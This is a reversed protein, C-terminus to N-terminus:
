SVIGILINDFLISLQVAKSWITTTHLAKIFKHGECIGNLQHIFMIKKHCTEHLNRFFSFFHLLRSSNKEQTYM